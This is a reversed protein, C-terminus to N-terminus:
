AAKLLKTKFIDLAFQKDNLPRGDAFSRRRILYRSAWRAPSRSYGRWVVAGLAELGDADQVIKGQRPLRMQASAIRKSLMNVFARWNKQRFTLFDRLFIRRTEAAALISSRHQM